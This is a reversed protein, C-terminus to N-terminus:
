AGATVQLGDNDARLHRAQSPVGVASFAAQMAQAVREAVPQEAVCLVSSGSGSLWGTLAGAATGAEIAARAGPIKPLRYPEHLFDEVAGRLKAYEGAVFAATLYAASNVSKVADFFPLQAPLAGRSDKTAIETVPSVVVFVLADAVPVRVVDLYRGTGPECRAACFGGLVGASANDPHGEMATVIGVLDHRSLPEGAWANLGALVGALVTVSSGLGRAPPVDGDIRYLFPKPAGGTARGFAEVAEEVMEQARGDAPREGSPGGGNAPTLTVRNYLRLALGLSDFGSGCNSTSAPVRVTVPSAPSM